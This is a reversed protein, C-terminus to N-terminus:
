SASRRRDGSLAPWAVLFTPSFFFFVLFTDEKAIRNFSIASPDFAWFAAAIIAVEIGFLERAVFFILLSCLAGVLVGPFRLASELPIVHTTQGAKSITKEWREAAVISVTLLAKMLMPHEGNASTLGNRRYDQVARVKNLEDDSLGDVSLNHLRFGFGLSVILTLIAALAFNSIAFDQVGFPASPGIRATMIPQVRIDSVDIVGSM